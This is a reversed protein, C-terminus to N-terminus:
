RKGDQAVGPIKADVWVLTNGIYRPPLGEAPLHKTTSLGLATYLDQWHMNQTHGEHYPNDRRLNNHVIMANGKQTHKDKVSLYLVSAVGLVLPGHPMQVM